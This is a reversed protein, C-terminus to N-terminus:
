SVHHHLAEHIRPDKIPVISNKSLFRTVFFLFTGLFGVFIAVEMFGFTVHGENFNPYVLWYVDVYQMILILISMPVLVSVNRKSGRPLLVLFPVIFKFLLISYSVAM